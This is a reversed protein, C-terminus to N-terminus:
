AVAAVTFALAEADLQEAALRGAGAINDHTLAARAPVRAVVDPDALIMGKECEGVARDCKAVALQASLEDVDHRSFRAFLFPRYLRREWSPRGRVLDM